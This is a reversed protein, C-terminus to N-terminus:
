EKWPLYYIQPVGTHSMIVPQGEPSLSLFSDINQTNVERDIIKEWQGSPVSLRFIGGQGEGMGMYIANSDKTWVWFGQPAEFTKLDSWKGTAATYLVLRAPSQVLAVLYRHDPSWSPIFFKEAGPMMSIRHTDLDYIRIGLTEPQNPLPYLNFYIHKGDAAWSPAVQGPKDKEQLIAHPLGGDSSVIYIRNWDSYVISRGDPSWETFYAPTDTLQTPESGDMRSKWLNASPWETYAMWQRDPSMSFALIAAGNLYPLMHGSRPDFVRSEGQDMQQLTYVGKSDHSPVSDVLDTDNGTLRVPAPKKWFEFWRPKVLEYLNGHGDRDSTFVLHRNDPTWRVSYQGSNAPWDQLLPHADTGDTRVMWLRAAGGLAPTLPVALQKEDPSIAMDGSFGPTKWVKRENGGNWDCVYLTDLDAFYILSGDRSLRAAQVTHSSVRRVGGGVMSGTWLTGRGVEDDPDAKWGLFKSGDTSVDWLQMGRPVVAVAAVMGGNVAIQFTSDRSQFYLRSGDTLLPRNKPTASFTLQKPELPSSVAAPTLAIAIALAALPLGVIAYWVPPIHRRVRQAPLAQTSSLKGSLERILRRLDVMIERASQYREAPDKELAKAVIRQLEAPAEPNMMRVPQPQGRIVEALITATSEGPFARLGTAMEYLVTGFSFIDSRTDVPRGEAQEPSMYSATGLLTGQQTVASTLTSEVSGTSQPRIRKALGFDLLKAEGRSTIFINSPKLDRHVIGKEHAFDLADCIQV